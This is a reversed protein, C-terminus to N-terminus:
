SQNQEQCLTRFTQQRAESVFRKRSMELFVNYSLKVQRRENGRTATASRIRISYYEKKIPNGILM